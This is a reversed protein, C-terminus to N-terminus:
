DVDDARQRGAAGVALQEHLHDYQGPANTSASWSTWFFFAMMAQRQDVDPIPNQQIAYQTM